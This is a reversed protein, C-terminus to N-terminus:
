SNAPYVSLGEDIPGYALMADLQAAEAPTLPRETAVLHIWQATLGRLGPCVARGKTLARLQKAARLAM